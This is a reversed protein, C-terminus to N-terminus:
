ERHQLHKEIRRRVHEWEVLEEGAAKAIRQYSIDSRKRLIPPMKDIGTPQRQLFLAGGPMLRPSASDQANGRRDNGILAVIDQVCAVLVEGRDRDACGPVQLGIRAQQPCSCASSRKFGGEDAGRLIGSGSWTPSPRPINPRSNRSPEAAQIGALRLTMRELVSTHLRVLEANRHDDM